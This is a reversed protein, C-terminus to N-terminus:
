LLETKEVVLLQVWQLQALGGVVRESLPQSEEVLVPMNDIPLM